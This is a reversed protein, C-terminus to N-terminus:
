ALSEGSPPFLLTSGKARGTSGRMVWLRLELPFRDVLAVVSADPDRAPWFKPVSPQAATSDWPGPFAAPDRTHWYEALLNVFERFADASLARANPDGTSGEALEEALEKGGRVVMHLTLPGILSLSYELPLDAPGPAPLGAHRSVLNAWDRTVRNVMESLEFANPLRTKM